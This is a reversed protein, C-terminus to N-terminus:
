KRKNNMMVLFVAVVICIVALIGLVIEKNGSEPIEWLYPKFYNIIPTDWNLYTEDDWNKVLMFPVGVKSIDLWLREMVEAMEASNEKNSWVEKKIIDLKNYGDTKKLYYDVNACHSCGDWYYYIYSSDRILDVESNNTWISIELSGTNTGDIRNNLEWESTTPLLDALAFSFSMALIFLLIVLKKM